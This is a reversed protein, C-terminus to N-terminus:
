NITQLVEWLRYIDEFKNYLPVAALRIVNPERWDAIIGQATLKDFVERGRESFLLSLQCGRRAPDTPTIIEFSLHTISRLMFEMYEILLLSKERLAKIGAKDFVDLSANLAVMNFVPANSM